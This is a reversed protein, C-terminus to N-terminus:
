ALVRSKLMEIFIPSENLSEVLDLREGGAHIFMEKYEERVEVLTELCDAVFAPSFVLLSKKGEAGLRKIVHDTFPEIWPDRGLRSQFCTVAKEEPLGIKKCILRTTEYCQAKYCSRNSEDIGNECHHDNCLSDDQYVKDMHRVPLGHYSFVVHDYNSLQYNKTREAWADIFLPDNYFDKVIYIEPIVWWKSIIKMAKEMVSGTSASAYHPFLPIIILKKLDMKKLKELAVDMSPSQYRMALEVHYNPPLKAALMEKQTKSISILPFSNDKWIKKYEKASKPSRFPVIIGNVLLTRGLWSLDIVRPDNLFEFLYKRVDSVKPSDPSGLNVLLVGTDPKTSM